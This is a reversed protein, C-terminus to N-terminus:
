LQRGKLVIWFIIPIGILATISNIPILTSSFSHSIGDSLLMIGSGILASYTILEFHRSSKLILRSIHPVAIGIFGIPGAYATIIGTMIGSVLFILFRMTKMNLGLTKADEEGLYLADLYKSLFISGTSLIIIVISFYWLQNNQISDLNGMTWIIYKKLMASPAFYQMINILAGFGSGLFIGVVLITLNDRVRFSIIMVIALVFFAGIIGAIAISINMNIASIGFFSLGLMLISVGFGAGASIGFIYPGALPNRFLTQLLLGSISLGIGVLIAMIVRPLRLQKIILNTQSNGYGALSRFIDGIGINVSGSHLDFFFLCISIIAILFFKLFYKNSRRVGM